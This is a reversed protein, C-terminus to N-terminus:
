SKLMVDMRDTDMVLEIFSTADMKVLWLSTKMLNLSISYFISTLTETVNTHMNTNIKCLTICWLIQNISVHVRSPILKCDLSVLSLALFFSWIQMNQILHFSLTLWTNQMQKVKLEPYKLKPYFSAQFKCKKFITIHYHQGLIRWKCNIYSAIYPKARLVNPM